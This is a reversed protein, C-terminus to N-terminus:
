SAVDDVKDHKAQHYTEEFAQPSVHGITSHRRKRNYYGAIYRTVAHSAEAKTRFRTRHVLEKKLSAHFSEICANDFPDGKRSMSLTCRHNTLVKKYDIACYQSGRDSHHLLGSEPIERSSLAMKLADLALETRMHDQINWGVIKRSFLDMVTALYLWGERTRIYTIDTVWVQNPQEATFDRNLRNPETKLTHNSDTTTVFAVKPIARLGQEQMLRAVTKVSMTYGWAVLDQHVRPSGYTGRSERFSRSVMRKKETRDAERDTEPAHQRQKWKYYGSKSVQLIRCMKEIAYENEHRQIHAFIM